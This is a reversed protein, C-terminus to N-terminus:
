CFTIVLAGSSDAIDSRDAIIIQWLIQCVNQPIGFRLATVPDYQVAVAVHM